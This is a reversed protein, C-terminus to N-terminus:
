IIKEKAAKEKAAKRLTEITKEESFLIHKKCIPCYLVRSGNLYCEQIRIHKEPYCNMCIPRCDDKDLESRLFHFVDFSFVANINNITVRFGEIEMSLDAIKKDYEANDKDKNSLQAAHIHSAITWTTGWVTVLCGIVNLANFFTDDM